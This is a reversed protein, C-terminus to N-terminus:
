RTRDKGSLARRLQPLAAEFDAQAKAVDAETLGRAALWGARRQEEGYALIATRLAQRAESVGEQLALATGYMQIAREVAGLRRTPDATM